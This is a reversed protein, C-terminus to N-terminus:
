QARGIDRRDAPEAILLTFSPFGTAKVGNVQVDFTSAGIVYLALM